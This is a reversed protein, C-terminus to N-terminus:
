GLMRKKFAALEEATIKGEDHLRIMKELDEATPTKELLTELKKRHQVTSKKESMLVFLAGLIPSLLLSLFFAGVFGIQRESGAAGLLLSLVIWLIVIM